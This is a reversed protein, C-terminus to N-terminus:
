RYQKLTLEDGRQTFEIDKLASMGLLIAQDTMGPNISASVNKLRIAGIRLEDITTAYVDVRGNATIATQRRGKRLNLQQAIDAPIVVDTAGTDLLFVAKHANITGTTVYHNYRNRLLTVQIMKEEQLSKPTPNPNFQLNEWLGFLWTLLILALIWAIVTM